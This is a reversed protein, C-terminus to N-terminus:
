LSKLANYRLSLVATNMLCKGNTLDAVAAAYLLGPRKVARYKCAYGNDTLTLNATRLKVVKTLSGTLGCLNFLCSALIFCLPALRSEAERKKENESGNKLINLLACLPYKRQTKKM